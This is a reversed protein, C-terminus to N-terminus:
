TTVKAKKIQNKYSKQVDAVQQYYLNTREVFAKANNTDYKSLDSIYSDYVVKLKKARESKATWKAEKYNAKSYAKKAAKKFGMDDLALGRISHLSGRKAKNGYRESAKRLGESDTSLKGRVKYLQAKTRRIGWKMGKVGHHYIYDNNM